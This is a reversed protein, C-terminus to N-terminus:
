DTFRHGVFSWGMRPLNSPVPHDRLVRAIRRPSGYFRAYALTMLEILRQEPVDPLGFGERGLDKHLVQAVEDPHDDGLETGAFPTVINFLALHLDSDVAFRITSRIERESEGPFGLMFFGTSFIRAKATAAIVERIRDMGLDKKIERQIRETATEIAIAYFVVGARAYLPIDEPPLIDGRLGNPFSIRVDLGRRILGELIARSRKRDLNFIDDVIEFDRIGTVAIHHAIEDLVREVSMPRFDKGFFLHCYTCHYPCARSTMLPLTPRPGLQSFSKRHRYRDLPVLTFDLMPLDDQQQIYDPRETSRHAGDGDLWHVGALGAVPEGNRLALLLAELILEGEREVVWTVGPLDLVDRPYSSAHPGGVVVPVGPLLRGLQEVISALSEREWTLASVGVLRPPESRAGVRELGGAVTEVQTDVVGVRADCRTGLWAALSLVGLPPVVSANRATVNAAKILVVEPLDRGYGVPASGPAAPSM